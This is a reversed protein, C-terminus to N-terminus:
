DRGRLGAAHRVAAALEVIDMGAAPECPHIMNLGASSSSPSSRASTGTPPSGPPLAARRPRPVLDWVRRYYPRPAERWRGRAGAAARFDRPAMDEHVSLMDVQVRATSRTSCAARGHRGHHRARRQGGIRSTPYRCRLRGRPARRSACPRMRPPRAHGLACSRARPRLSDPAQAEWGEGWATTPTSTTTSSRCGGDDM